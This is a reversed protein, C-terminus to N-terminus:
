CVRLRSGAKLGLLRAASGRNVAIEVLGISNAYWFPRGQKADSYTRAYHVHTSGCEILAEQRVGAAPIGSFCHGYHDVYIVRTLADAPLCVDLKPVQELKEHPVASRPSFASALAALLHAGAEVDYAPADHLLDVVSVEPAEGQLVAKVQGVYLDSSGFDTFLIISM